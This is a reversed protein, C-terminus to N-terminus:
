EDNITDHSSTCNSPWVADYLVVFYHSHDRQSFLAELLPFMVKLLPPVECMIDM